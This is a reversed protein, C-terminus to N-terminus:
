LGLEINLCQIFIYLFMSLPVLKTYKRINFIYMIIAFLGIGLTIWYSMSVTGQWAALLIKSPHFIYDLFNTISKLSDNVQQLQNSYPISIEPMTFPSVLALTSVSMLVKGSGIDHLLKEFSGCEPQIVERTRDFFEKFSMVETKM